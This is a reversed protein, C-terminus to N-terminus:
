TGTTVSRLLCIRNTACGLTSLLIARSEGTMRSSSRTIGPGDTRFANLDFSGGTPLGLLFAAFDQGLPASTLQRISALGTPASSIAAKRIEMASAARAYNASTPEWKSAHKGAIKVVDGFIQFIDFPTVDGGNDGLQNFGGGIDM